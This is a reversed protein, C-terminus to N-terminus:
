MGTALLKTLDFSSMERALGASQGSWLAMFDGSGNPETKAKLPALAHGATPFEPADTSIPGLERMIRNM